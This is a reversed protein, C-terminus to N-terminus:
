STKCQSAVSMWEDMLGAWGDMGVTTRMKVHSAALALCPLALYPTDDSQRPGGQRDGAGQVGRRECEKVRVRSSNSNSSGRSWWWWWWWWRTWTGCESREVRTKRGEERREKRRREKKREKRGRSRVEDKGISENDM